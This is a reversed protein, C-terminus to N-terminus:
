LPGTNVSHTKLQWFVLWHVTTLKAGLPASSDGSLEWKRGNEKALTRRPRVSGPKEPSGTRLHRSLAQDPLWGPM